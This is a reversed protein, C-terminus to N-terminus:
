KMYTRVIGNIDIILGVRGDGLITAGALGKVKKFRETLGKIVVQQQGLLEDVMLCIQGRDSDVLCGVMQEIDTQADECDFLEHLRVIRYLSGHIDIMEGKGVVSTINENKPQIFELVSFIPVIYREIGSRLVIGDIIALTLPLKIYFVSGKGEESEIDIKGRLEEINRRVVDMGVGRGSIDTVTDATSFGPEFILSFIDKDSKIENIGAINREKAKALIRDKNLGRGDDRIEIVINGGKHYANLKVQGKRPKGAKLRDEQDSEIGHDVSNRVMHMLPDNILDVINKDIETGEGTLIVDVEKGSKKSLDRVVRLMKQFVPKIPVLRMSMAVEQVERIIRSFQGVDKDLRQDECDRVIPNQAVQTGTIVLEGVMDILSDLKNLAIKISADMTTPSSTKKLEQLGQNLQNNTITGQEVLVEGLKKSPSELQQKALAETVQQNDVLGQDILVEGLKPARPAQAGPKIIQRVKILTLSVDHYPSILQGGNELQEQILKLLASVSDIAKFCSEMIDESLLLRGKRVDDMMSETEHTLIKLDELNLFGALGKITHFARFLINIEETNDPDNELNLLAQEATAIHEHSEVIFDTFMDEGMTMDLVPVQPKFGELYDDQGMPKAQFDNPLLKIERLIGCLPEVVISASKEPNEELDSVISKILDAVQLLLTILEESPLGKGERVPELIDEVTHALLKCNKIGLLGAEGKLTHFERYLSDICSEDKPNKELALLSKEINELLSYTTSVFLAYDESKGNPVSDRGESLNLCDQDLKKLREIWDSKTGKFSKAERLTVIIFESLKEGNAAGAKDAYDLWLDLVDSFFKVNKSKSDIKIDKVIKDIEVIINEDGFDLFVIENAIQDILVELRQSVSDGM